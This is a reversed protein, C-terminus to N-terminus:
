SSRYDVLSNVLWIYKDTIHKEKEQEHSHPIHPLLLTKKGNDQLKYTTNGIRTKIHYFLM